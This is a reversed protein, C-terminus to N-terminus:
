KVKKVSVPPHLVQWPLGEIPVEQGGIIRNFDSFGGETLSRRSESLALEVNPSILGCDEAGLSAQSALTVLLFIVGVM